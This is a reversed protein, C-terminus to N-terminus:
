RAAAFRAHAGLARLADAEVRSITLRPETKASQDTEHATREAVFQPRWRLRDRTDPHVDLGGQGDEAPKEWVVIDAVDDM